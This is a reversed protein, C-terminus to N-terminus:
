WTRIQDSTGRCCHEAFVKTPLTDAVIDNNVKISVHLKECGFGSSRVKPKGSIGHGKCGPSDTRDASPNYVASVLAVTVFLLM